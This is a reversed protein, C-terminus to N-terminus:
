LQRHVPEERITTYIALFNSLKDPADHNREAIPDMHNWKQDFVHQGNNEFTNYDTGTQRSLSISSDNPLSPHVATLWHGAPDIAFPIPM